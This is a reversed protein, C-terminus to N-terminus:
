YVQVELHKRRWKMENWRKTEGQRIPWWCSFFCFSFTIFTQLLQITLSSKQQARKESSRELVHWSNSANASVINFTSNIVLPIVAFQSKKLNKKDKRCTLRNYKHWISCQGAFFDLVVRNPPLLLLFWLYIDKTHRTKQWMAFLEHRDYKGPSQHSWFAIKVPDSLMVPFLVISDSALLAWTVWSCRNEQLSVRINATRLRTKGM